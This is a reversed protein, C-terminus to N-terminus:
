NVGLMQSANIMDVQMTDSLTRGAHQLLHIAQCKSLNDCVRVICRWPFIDPHVGM